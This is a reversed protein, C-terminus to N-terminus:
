FEAVFTLFALYILADKGKFLRQLVKTARSRALFVANPTINLRQCIEDTTLGDFYVLRFVAAQQDPLNKLEAHILAITEAHIITTLVDNGLHPLDEALTDVLGSQRYSASELYNLCANRAAIFLFAKLKEPSAFRERAEWVKVFGDQVIEEAVTDDKVMRFAFYTLARMHQEMVYKLGRQSGQRLLELHHDM